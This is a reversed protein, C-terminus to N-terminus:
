DVIESVINNFTELNQVGYEKVFEDRIEDHTKETNEILNLIFYYAVATTTDNM